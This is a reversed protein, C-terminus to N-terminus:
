PTKADGVRWDPRFIKPPELSLEEDQRGKKDGEGQGADDCMRDAAPSPDAAVNPQAAHADM